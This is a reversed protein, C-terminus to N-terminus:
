LSDEDRGVAGRYMEGAVRAGVDVVEIGREFVDRLGVLEGEVTKGL